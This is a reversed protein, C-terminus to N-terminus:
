APQSATFSSSGWCPSAVVALFLPWTKRSHTRM